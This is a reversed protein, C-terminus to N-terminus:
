YLSMQRYGLCNSKSLWTRVKAATQHLVTFCVLCSPSTVKLWTVRGTRSLFITQLVVCLWLWDAGLPQLWVKNLCLGPRPCLWGMTVSLPLIFLQSRGALLTPNKIKIKNQAEQFNLATCPLSHQLCFIKELDTFYIWCQRYNPPPESWWPTPPM